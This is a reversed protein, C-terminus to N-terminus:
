GTMQSFGVLFSLLVIDSHEAPGAGCSGRVQENNGSSWGVLDFAAPWKESRNPLLCENSAVVSVGGVHDLQRPIEKDRSHDLTQSFGKSKAALESNVRM